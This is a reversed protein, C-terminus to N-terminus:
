EGSNKVYEEIVAVEAARRKVLGPLRRGGGHVWRMLEVCAGEFDEADIRKKLTSARYKAGGLNFCFDSIAEHVEPHLALSPSAKLAICWFKFADKTMRSDAQEQSWKTGIGIGPGTAGWGVTWVGAPCLYAVLRCGEFSKILHLLIKM